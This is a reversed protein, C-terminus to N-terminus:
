WLCKYSNWLTMSWEHFFLMNFYFLFFTYNINSCNLICIYFNVKIVNWKSRLLWLFWYLHMIIHYVAYSYYRNIGVIKFDVSFAKSVFYNPIWLELFMSFDVWYYSFDCISESFRLVSCNFFCSDCTSRFYYCCTEMKWKRKFCSSM